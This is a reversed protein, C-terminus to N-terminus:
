FIHAHLGIAIVYSTFIITELWWTKNYIKISPIDQPVYEMALLVALTAYSINIYGMSIILAETLIMALPAAISHGDAEPGSPNRFDPTVYVVALACATLFAWLSDGLILGPVVYGLVTISHLWKPAVYWSQSISSQVGYKIGVFLIYGYFSICMILFLILNTM